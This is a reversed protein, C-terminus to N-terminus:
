VVSKRDGCMFLAGIAFGLIINMMKNPSVPSTPVLAQSLVSPEDTLMTESIYKKAVSAYENAVAAALHPDVSRATIHLIRTNSPNSISIMDRMELYSNDMGLNQMVMEHVEWTEFVQQYDATLYSGIQLDSLNIASDSSNLVYLKSTAEYVPKAMLYSYFAMIGAGIMAAAFIYKWKELLRYALEIFDLEFERDEQATEATLGNRMEADTMM